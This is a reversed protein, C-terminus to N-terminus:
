GTSAPNRSAPSARQIAAWPAKGLLMTSRIVGAVLSRPPVRTGELVVAGAAVLGDLGRTLDAAVSTYNACLLTPRDPILAPDALLRDLGDAAFM